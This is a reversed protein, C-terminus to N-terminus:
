SLRNAAEKKEKLSKITWVSFHILFVLGFVCAGVFLLFLLVLPVFDNDLQKEPPIPPQHTLAYYLWYALFTFIAFASFEVILIITNFIKRNSKTM